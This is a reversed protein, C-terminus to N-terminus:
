NQNFNSAVSASAYGCVHAGISLYLSNMHTLYEHNSGIILWIYVFKELKLCGPPWSLLFAKRAGTLDLWFEPFHGFDKNFWHKKQYLFILSILLYAKNPHFTLSKHLFPINRNCIFLSWSWLPHWTPKTNTNQPKRNFKIFVQLYPQFEACIM